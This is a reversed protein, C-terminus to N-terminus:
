MKSHDADHGKFIYFVLYRETHLAQFTCWQAISMKMYVTSWLYLITVIICYLLCVPSLPIVKQGPRGSEGPEGQHFFILSSFPLGLLFKGLCRPRQATECLLGLNGRTWRGKMWKIRRSSMVSSVHFNIARLIRIAWMYNWMEITLLFPHLLFIKKSFGESPKESIDRTHKCTV